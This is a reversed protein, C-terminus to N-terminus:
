TLIASKMSLHILAEKRKQAPHTISIVLRGLNRSREIRRESVVLLFSVLPHSAEGLPSRSGAKRIIHSKALGDLGDGQQEMSGVLPCRKDHCRLREDEIPLFLHLLESWGQIHDIDVALPILLCGNLLGICAIHHKSGISHQHSLLLRESCLLPIGDTKVLRM